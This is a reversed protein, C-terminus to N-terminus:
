SCTARLVEIKALANFKEFILARYYIMYIVDSFVVLICVFIEFVTSESFDFLCFIPIFCARCLMSYFYFLGLQFNIFIRGM